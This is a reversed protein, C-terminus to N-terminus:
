NNFDYKVKSAQRHPITSLSLKQSILINARFYHKSM